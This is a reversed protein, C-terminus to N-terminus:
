QFKQIPFNVNRILNIGPVAFHILLDVILKLTQDGGVKLGGLLAERAGFLKTTWSKLGSGVAVSASPSRLAAARRRASRASAFSDPNVCANRKAPDQNEM